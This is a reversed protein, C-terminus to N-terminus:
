ALHREGAGEEGRWRSEIASRVGDSNVVKTCFAAEWLYAILASIWVSTREARRPWVMPILRLLRDVRVRPGSASASGSPRAVFPPAFKQRSIQRSRTNTPPLM